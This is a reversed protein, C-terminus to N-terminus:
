PGQFETAGSDCLSQGVNAIDVRSRFNQDFEPCETDNGNDIAPSGAKLLHTPYFIGVANIKLGALGMKKINEDTGGLGCTAGTELNGGDLIITGACNFPANKDFIVNRITATALGANEVGGSDSKNKSKNDKITVNHLVLVAEDENKIGGVENGKNGSVTCNTLTADSQNDLGGGEDGAQNKAITTFNAVITGATTGPNYIGGGSDLSKNKLIAVQSLNLTGRNSIGGGDDQAKNNAVVVNDLTLTGFNLIGGGEFDDSNANEDKTSISGKSITLQKITVNAGPLVHIVRDKKGSIVAVKANSAQITVDGTLDLDGTAAADEGAGVLKLVYKNPLLNIIDEGPQANAEQVAARLSCTGDATACVGDIQADPKDVKTDVSFVLARAPATSLLLAMVTAISLTRHM